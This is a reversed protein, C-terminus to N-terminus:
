EREIIRHPVGCASLLAHGRTELIDCFTVVGSFGNLQRHRGFPSYEVWTILSEIWPTDSNRRECGAKNLAKEKDAVTIFPVSMLRFDFPKLLERYFDVLAADSLQYWGILDLLPNQLLAGEFIHTVSSDVTDAFAKWRALLMQMYRAAPLVGNCIQFMELAELQRNVQIDNCLMTPVHIIRGGCFTETADALKKLGYMWDNGYHARYADKIRTEFVSYDQESLFVRSTFDLPNERAHEYHLITHGGRAVCQRYLREAATTKGSALTGEVFYIM